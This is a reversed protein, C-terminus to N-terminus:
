TEETTAPAPTNLRYLVGEETSVGSAEGDAILLHLAHGLVRWRRYTLGAILMEWLVPGATLTRRLQKKLRDLHAKSPRHLRKPKTM